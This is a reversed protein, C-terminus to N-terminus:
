LPNFGVVVGLPDQLVGCTVLCENFSPINPVLRKRVKDRENSVYVNGVCVGYDEFRSLSRRRCRGSTLKISLGYM